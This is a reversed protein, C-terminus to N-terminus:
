IYILIHHLYKNTAQLTEQLSIDLVQYHIIKNDSLLSRPLKRSNFINAQPQGPLIYRTDPKTTQEPPNPGKQVQQFSVLQLTNLFSLCFTLYM